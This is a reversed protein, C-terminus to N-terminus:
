QTPSTDLSIDRSLDKDQRPLEVVVGPTRRTFGLIGLAQQIYPSNTYTDWVLRTLYNEIMIMSCGKNIGYVSHSYWPPDFDLNYSDFFGYQGHCQTHNQYLYDIMSITLDPIFPLTALAGCINVTGNHRPEVLCPGGGSVDYGWPSDGCSLGWSNSHYTRFHGSHEICYNRNALCALRTNDFWDIGDPDLCSASDLWAESFQYAFLNGEPNVIIPHGDYFCTDRAFGQYLAKAVLPDLHNAAQLYMMKQEAAMSWHSIFGPKDTVYDGNLDPNYAMRFLTRGNEQSIFINWDVRELLQRAM